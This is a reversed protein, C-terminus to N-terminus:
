EKIKEHPIAAAPKTAPALPPHTAQPLESPRVYMPEHQHHLPIGEHLPPETGQSAPFLPRNRLGARSRRQAKVLPGLSDLYPLAGTADKYVSFDVKRDRFSKLPQGLGRLGVERTRHVRDLDIEIPIIEPASGAQHLIEGHPGVVISGGNGGDGLGNVDFFFCQNTAATARAISLEVDRDITSTMTPHIIVEAGMAVLTRTTEPFWMDYCISLGFRGVDPVDFVCFETGADVGEEYPYFPFMKRYRSVVVGQPNIVLATNYIRDEFREFMSGPLLWVGHRAAMEQFQEELAGPLHVAKGTLPGLPALESFVVMDVWPFIHMVLELRERMRPVNSEVASIYMQVGAISFPNM